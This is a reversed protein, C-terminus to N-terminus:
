LDIPVFQYREVQRQAEVPQHLGSFVHEDRHTFLAFAGRRDADRDAGRDLSRLMNRPSPATLTGAQTKFLLKARAATGPPGSSSMGNPGSPACPEPVCTALLRALSDGAQSIWTRRECSPWESPGIM